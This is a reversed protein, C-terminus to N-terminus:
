RWDTRASISAIICRLSASKPCDLESSLAPIPHLTNKSSPVEKPRLPRVGTSDPQPSVLRASSEPIREEKAIISQEFGLELGEAVVECLLEIKRELKGIDRSGQQISCVFEHASQGTGFRHVFVSRPPFQLTVRLDSVKDDMGITLNRIRGLDRLFKPLEDLVGPGQVNVQVVPDTHPLREAIAGNSMDM